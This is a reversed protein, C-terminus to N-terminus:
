GQYFFILIFDVLELPTGGPLIYPILGLIKAIYGLGSPACSQVCFTTAMAVSSYVSMKGLLSAASSGEVGGATGGSTVGPKVEWSIQKDM